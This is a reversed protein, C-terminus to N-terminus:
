EDMEDVVIWLAHMQRQWSLCNPNPQRDAFIGFSGTQRNVALIAARSM